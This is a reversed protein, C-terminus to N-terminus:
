KPVNKGPENKGHTAVYSVCDGQNKFGLTPYNKWGGKKCQDASTPAAPAPPPPLVTFDQSEFVASYIRGSGITGCTQPDPTEDRCLNFSAYATGEDIADGTLTSITATYNVSDGLSVQGGQNICIAVGSTPNSELTKSGTVTGNPSTITFQAQFSTISGTGGGNTQPGWTITGTETYTGPYPGTATGSVAFSASSTGTPDCVFNTTPIGNPDGPEGVELRELDLSAPDAQAFASSVLGFSAVLALLATM